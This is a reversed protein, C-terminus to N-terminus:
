LEKELATFCCPRLMARETCILKSNQHVGVACSLLLRPGALLVNHGDERLHNWTTCQASAANQLAYSGEPGHQEARALVTASHCWPQMDAIFCRPFRCAKNDAPMGPLHLSCSQTMLCALLAVACCPRRPRLYHLARCLQGMCATGYSASIDHAGIM